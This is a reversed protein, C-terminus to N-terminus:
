ICSSINGDTITSCLFQITRKSPIVRFNSFITLCFNFLFLSVYVRYIRNHIFGYDSVLRWRRETVVSRLEVPVDKFRRSSWIRDTDNVFVSSIIRRISKICRPRHAPSGYSPSEGFMTYLSLLRFVDLPLHFDHWGNLSSALLSTFITSHFSWCFFYLLLLVICPRM